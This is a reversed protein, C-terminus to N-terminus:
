RGIIAIAYEVWELSTSRLIKNCIAMFEKKVSVRKVTIRIVHFLHFSIEFSAYTHKVRYKNKFIIHNRYISKVM